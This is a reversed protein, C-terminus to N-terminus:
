RTVMSIVAEFPFLVAGAIFKLTGRVARGARRAFREFASSECVMGGIGIVAMLATFIGFYLLVTM